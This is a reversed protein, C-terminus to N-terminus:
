GDALGLGVVDLAPSPAIVNIASQLSQFEHLKTRSSFNWLQLRGDSSGIVIKNLYADPHALATPVFGSDLEIVTEPTDEHGITWVCLLGGWGVALLKNGLVLMATVQGARPARLVRTVHVRRCEVIDGGDLASYTREGACALSTIRRPLQVIISISM